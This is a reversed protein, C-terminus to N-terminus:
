NARAGVVETVVDQGITNAEDRIFTTNDKLSNSIYNTPKLTVSTKLAFVAELAGNSKVGVIATKSPNVFSSKFGLSQPNSIFERASVRMVGNGTLNPALPITLYKSKKPTITGGHEHIRGYIAKTLDVGARVLVDLGVQEIRYFIARTLNGTRKKLLDGAAKQMMTRQLQVGIRRLSKLIHKSTIEGSSAKTWQFKVSAVTTTVDFESM